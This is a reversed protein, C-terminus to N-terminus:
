LSSPRIQSPNRRGSWMACFDRNGDCINPPRVLCVEPYTDALLVVQIRQIVCCSSYEKGSKSEVVGIVGEV